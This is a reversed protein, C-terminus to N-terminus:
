REDSFRGLRIYIGGTIAGDKVTVSHDPSERYKGYPEDPRPAGMLGTRAGVYYRGPKDVYIVFKGDKRSWGSVFDPRGVMRADKYAFAYAQKFPKGSRDEIVGSIGQREVSGAFLMNGSFVYLSLDVKYSKGQRVEIRAADPTYLDGKRLNGSISGSTRKRAVVYYKGPPVETYYKGDPGTPEAMFDAPSRFKKKPSTYFYVEAGGVPKGAEDTLSGEVVGPRSMGYFDARKSVACASLLLVAIIPIFLYNKM